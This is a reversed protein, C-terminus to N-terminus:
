QFNDYGKLIFAQHYLLKIQRNPQAGEIAVLTLKPHIRFPWFLIMAVVAELM